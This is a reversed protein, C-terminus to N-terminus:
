SEIIVVGGSNRIVNLGPMIDGAVNETMISSDRVGNEWSVRVMRLENKIEISYNSSGVNQPLEFVRYYGDIRSATNIEAAAADAIEQASEYESSYRIDQNKIGIVAVMSTFIVLIIGVLIIFELSVEGKQSISM